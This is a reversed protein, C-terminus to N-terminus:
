VPHIIPASQWGTVLVVLMDFDRRIMM